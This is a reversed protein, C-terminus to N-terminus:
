AKVLGVMPFFFCSRNGNQVTGYVASLVTGHGTDVPALRVGPTVDVKTVLSSLAAKIQDRFPLNAPVKALWADVLTTGVKGMDAFGGKFTNVNFWAVQMGKATGDTTIGAPVFGYLTQGDKVVNPDIGAVTPLAVGPASWPGPVAGSVAPVLGFPNDATPATCNLAASPNLMPQIGLARLTTNATNLLGILDTPSAAPTAGAATDATTAVPVQGAQGLLARAAAIAAKDGGGSTLEALASVLASTAPTAAFTSGTAPSPATPAASAQATGLALCSAATVALAATATRMRAGTGRRSRARGSRETWQTGTM